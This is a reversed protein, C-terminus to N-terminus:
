KNAAESLWHFRSNYLQVYLPSYVNYLGTVVTQKNNNKKSTENVEDDM